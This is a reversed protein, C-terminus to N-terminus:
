AGDDDYGRKSERKSLIRDRLSPSPTDDLVPRRADRERQEHWDILFIRAQETDNEFQTGILRATGNVCAWVSYHDKGSTKTRWGLILSGVILSVRSAADRPNDDVNCTSISWQLGRQQVKARHQHWREVFGHTM